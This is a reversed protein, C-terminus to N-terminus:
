RSPTALTGVKELLILKSRGHPSEGIVATLDQGCRARGGSTTHDGSRWLEFGEILYVAGDVAILCQTNDRGDFMSLEAPTYSRDGARVATDPLPAWSLAGWIMGAGLIASLLTALIIPRPM